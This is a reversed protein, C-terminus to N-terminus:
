RTVAIRGGVTCGPVARSLMVSEASFVGSCTSPKSAARSLAQKHAGCWEDHQVAPRQVQPHEVIERCPQTRLRQHRVAVDQSEVQGTMTTGRLGRTQIAVVGLAGPVDIGYCSM